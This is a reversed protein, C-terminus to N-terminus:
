QVRFNTYHIVGSVGGVWEESTHHYKFIYDEITQYIIKDLKHSYIGDMKRWIIIVTDAEKDIKLLQLFEINGKKYVTDAIAARNLIIFKESPLKPIKNKVMNSDLIFIKKAENIKGSYPFKPLYSFQFLSELSKHIIIEKVEVTLKQTQMKPLIIILM